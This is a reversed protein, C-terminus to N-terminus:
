TTQVKDIEAYPYKVFNGVPLSQGSPLVGVRLFVIKHFHCGKWM